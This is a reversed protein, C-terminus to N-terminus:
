IYVSLSLYIHFSYSFSLSPAILRSHLFSLSLHHFLLSLFLRLHPHLCRSVSLSQSFSVTFFVLSLSRFFTSYSPLLIFSFSLYFIPSPSHSHYFSRSPTFSLHLSFSFSLILSQPLFLYLFLSRSLFLALFFSLSLIPSLYFLFLVLSIYISDSLLRTLFASLYCTTTTCKKCLDSIGSQLANCPILFRRARRAKSCEECEKRLKLKLKRLKEAKGNKTKM